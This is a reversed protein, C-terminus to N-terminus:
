AYIAIPDIEQSLHLLQQVFQELGGTEAGPLAWNLLDSAITRYAKAAAADPFLGV